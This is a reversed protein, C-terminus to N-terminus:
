TTGVPTPRSRRLLAPSAPVCGELRGEELADHRPDIPVPASPRRGPSSSCRCSSGVTREDRRRRPHARPQAHRHCRLPGLLLGRRGDVDLEVRARGRADPDTAPLENTGALDARLRDQSGNAIAVGGIATGGLVVAVGALLVRRKGMDLRREGWARDAVARGGRCTTDSTRVLPRDPNRPPGPEGCRARDHLIPAPRLRFSRCTISTLAPMPFADRSGPGSACTRMQSRDPWSAPAPAVRTSAVNPAWTIRTSSGTM